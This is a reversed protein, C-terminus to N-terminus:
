IADAHVGVHLVTQDGSTLKANPTVPLGRRECELRFETPPMGTLVAAASPFDEAESDVQHRLLVIIMTIRGESELIQMMGYRRLNGAKSVSIGSCRVPISEMAQAPAGLCIPGISGEKLLAWISWREDESM